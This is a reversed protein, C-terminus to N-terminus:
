EKPPSKRLFRYYSSISKEKTAKGKPTNYYEKYYEWMGDIDNAKPLPPKVRAYHLRCIASAYKLDYTLRNPDPIRPVDFNLALMATINSRNIIYNRWMDNHTNPECQYIGVAPGKIQHVFTGGDSETACTFVLLEEADKSYMQLESLAPVVIYERFQNIDLM